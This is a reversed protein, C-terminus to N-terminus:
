VTSRDAAGRLKNDKDLLCAPNASWESRVLKTNEWSGDATKINMNNIRDISMVKKLLKLASILKMTVLIIINMIEKYNKLILKLAENFFGSKYLQTSSKFEYNFM